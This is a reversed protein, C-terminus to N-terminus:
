LRNGIGQQMIICGHMNYSMCSGDVGGHTLTVDLSDPVGCRCVMLIAVPM